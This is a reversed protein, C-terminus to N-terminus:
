AQAWKEILAEVREPVGYADSVQSNAQVAARIRETLQPDWYKVDELQSMNDKAQQYSSSDELRRVLAKAMQRQTQKHGIFIQRLEGALGNEGLGLGGIAQRRAVFGYPDEGLRVAIVPISRGMAFGVEQETWRSQHFGPHLLAVLADATSLAALIEDQWEKTPEIDKHAVFGSIGCGALSVQLAAAFVKHDSIHSIFLRLYDQRWFGPDVAPRDPNQEYGLYSALETLKEDPANEVMAIVYKDRDGGWQDSTPLGYQRLTLDVLGWEQTGLRRGIEVIFAIREAPTM